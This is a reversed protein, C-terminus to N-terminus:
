EADEDDTYDDEGDDARWDRLDPLAKRPAEIEGEYLDTLIAPRALKDAQAQLTVRIEDGKLADWSRRGEPLTCGHTTALHVLEAKRFLDFFAADPTWAQELRPFYHRAVAHTERWPLENLVNLAAASLGAEYTEHELLLQELSQFRTPIEADIAHSGRSGWSGPTKLARWLVLSHQHLVAFSRLVTLTM